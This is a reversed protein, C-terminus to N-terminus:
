DDKQTSQLEDPIIPDYNRAWIKEDIEGKCWKTYKEIIEPIHNRWCVGHSPCIIDIPLAGVKPLAKAILGSLHLLINAYYKEAEQMVECLDNEDDWHKTTAFHQGFADNSFLVNKGNDDTMFSVMSDPWHIM